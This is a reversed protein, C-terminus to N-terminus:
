AIPAVQPPHPGRRCDPGTKHHLISHGARLSSCDFQPWHDVTEVARKCFVQSVFRLKEIKVLCAVVVGPVLRPKTQCLAAFAKTKKGEKIVRRVVFQRM